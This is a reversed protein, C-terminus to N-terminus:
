GALTQDRLNVSQQYTQAEWLMLRAAIGFDGLPSGGVVADLENDTLERCETTQSMDM